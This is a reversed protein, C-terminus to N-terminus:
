FTERLATIYGVRHHQQQETQIYVVFNQQESYVYKLILLKRKIIGFLKDESVHM